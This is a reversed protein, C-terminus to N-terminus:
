IIYFVGNAKARTMDLKKIIPINMTYLGSITCMKLDLNKLASEIPAGIGCTIIIGFLRSHWLTAANARREM